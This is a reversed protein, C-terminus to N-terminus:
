AISRPCCFTKVAATALSEVLAPTLQAQAPAAQVASAFTEVVDAVNLAVPVAPVAVIVAVEIFSVVAAELTVTVTLARGVIDVV